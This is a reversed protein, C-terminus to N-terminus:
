VRLSTIKADTAAHNRQGLGPRPYTGNPDNLDNRCGIAYSGTYGPIGPCRSLPDHKFDNYRLLARFSRESQVKGVDRAFIQARPCQSYSYDKGYKKFLEAPGGMEYVDDFFAINYSGYYGHSNLYRCSVGM